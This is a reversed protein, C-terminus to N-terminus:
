ENKKLILLGKDSEAIQELFQRYAAYKEPIVDQSYLSLFRTATLTQGQITDRTQYSGFENSMSVAQPM